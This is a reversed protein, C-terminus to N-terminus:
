SLSSEASDGAAAELVALEDPGFVIESRVTAWVHPHARAAGVSGALALVALLLNLLRLRGALGRPPM